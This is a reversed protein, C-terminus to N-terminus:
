PIGVANIREINVINNNIHCGIDLYHIIDNDKLENIVKLILYPKWFWYGFGRKGNKKIVNEIFNKANKDLDKSSFIKIDSYYKSDLAQLKLRKSSKNLDDTGFALLVISRKNIM